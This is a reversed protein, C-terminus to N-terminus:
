GPPWEMLAVNGALNARRREAEPEGFGGEGLRGEREEREGDMADGLAKARRIVDKATM